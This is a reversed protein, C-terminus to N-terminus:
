ADNQTQHGLLMGKVGLINAAIFGAIIPVVTWLTRDILAAALAFDSSVGIRVLLGVLSADKVGIGMPLMSILGALGSMSEILLIWFVSTDSGMFLLVYNLCIARIYLRTIYLVAVLLLTKKSVCRMSDLADRWWHLVRNIQKSIFGTGLQELKEPKFHKIGIFLVFGIVLVGSLIMTETHTLLLIAGILSFAFSIVIGLTMEVMISVSGPILPISFFVDYLWLRIPIGAKIPTTYNSSLSVTHVLTLTLLPTKYGMSRLLMWASFAAVIIYILAVITLALLLPAKLDAIISWNLTTLLYYGSASAFALFCVILVVKKWKSLPTFANV